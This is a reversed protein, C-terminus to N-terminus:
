RSAGDRTELGARTEEYTLHLKPELFPNPAPGPRGPDYDDLSPARVAAREAPDPIALEVPEPSWPRERESAAPSGTHEDAGVPLSPTAGTRAHEDSVEVATFPPAGVRALLDICALATVLAAAALLKRRWSTRAARHPAGINKPRRM